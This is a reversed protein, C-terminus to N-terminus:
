KGNECSCTTSNWFSSKKCQHEKPNECEFRCKNNNWKQNLNCRRCPLKCKCQCSIHKTSTRSENMGTTINFVHLNLDEGENPVCVRGSLDDLTNCSGACMNLNVVFPYYRLEAPHLNILTTQTMIKQNSLSVCKTYNSVSVISNLLTVFM